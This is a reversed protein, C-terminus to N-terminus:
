GKRNAIFIGFTWKAAAVVVREDCDFYVIIIFLLLRAVINTFIYIYM